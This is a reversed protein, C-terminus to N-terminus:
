PGLAKLTAAAGDAYLPHFHPNLALAKQLQTRAGATDGLAKAIMGAHYYFIPDRKGMRLAQDSAAKAESYKGNKYLVWALSDQTHIDQRVAAAKQALDLATTLDLDHDALFLAREIDVKVGNAEYTRFIFQFLDYQKQAEVTKGQRAYVDGLATVYQPLPIVTTAKTYYDAAEDWKGQGARLQGMAGLAYVYTPYYTLVQQYQAEAKTLDNELWYLLGLQVRCWNTNEAAPSGAEVAQQMATIAGPVDGHLERVYSVRSYSSLDPRTNVMNQAAEVAGSYNGLEVYADTIM